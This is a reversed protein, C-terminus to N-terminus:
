CLNGTTPLGIRPTILRGQRYNAHRSDTGTYYINYVAYQLSPMPHPACRGPTFPNDENRLTM